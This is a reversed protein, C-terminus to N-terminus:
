PKKSKLLYQDGTSLSACWTVTAMLDLSAALQCGPPAANCLSQLFSCVFRSKLSQGV